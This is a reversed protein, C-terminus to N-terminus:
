TDAERQTEQSRLNTRVACPAAPNLAEEDRPLRLAFATHYGAPPEVWELAGGLEEALRLSNALGLGTGQGPEKTTYFPDFIRERDEPDIGCGQDCVLCEVADARRAALARARDGGRARQVTPRVLLAVEGGSPSTADAANIVLNLLIQAVMGPDGRARTAESRDVRFTVHAYRRQAAVLEVSEEALAALDLEVREARPPKSYALLQGLIKRVRLGQESARALHERSQAGIGPDRGVLDVLALIAGLPNGVEHAVGSALRGVAALREARDLGERAERLATNSERLDVIAKELAETREALACSMENFAGAVEGVERPGEPALQLNFQGQAVQRTAAALEAIPAGIRRRVQFAGFATFIAVDLVVFLATLGLPVARLRLSAARPLRAVAVDGGSGLAAAFRIPEWPSGLLLLSRDTRRAEAALALTAADLVEGHDRVARATDDPLVRWWATEPVVSRGGESFRDAEAFLAPGLVARLRAEHAHLLLAALIATAALMVLGLSAVFETQLSARRVSM